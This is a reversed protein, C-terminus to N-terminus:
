LLYTSDLLTKPFELFDTQVYMYMRSYDEAFETYVM